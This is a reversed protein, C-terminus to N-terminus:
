QKLIVDDDENLIALSYSSPTGATALRHTLGLWYWGRFLYISLQVHYLHYIHRKSDVLFHASDPSEYVEVKQIYTYHYSTHYCQYWSNGIPVRYQGSCYLVRYLPVTKTYSSSFFSSKYSKISTITSVVRLIASCSRSALCSNWSHWSPWKEPKWQNIITKM